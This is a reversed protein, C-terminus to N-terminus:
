CGEDVPCTGPLLVGVDALSRRLQTASTFRVAQLGARRAAQVNREADDVFLTHAPDLDFRELLLAFIRPDPKAVGEEGSVVIGEFWELFDFRERAHRFSERPWNTLALLRIGADRLERLLAVSDEFAGVLSEAFREPYAAILQARHPHRASLQAVADDWPLGADCGSNWTLFDIEELFPDVEDAPMLQRYLHRPDWEILVGGLDFVVTHLQSM